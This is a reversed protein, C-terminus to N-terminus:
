RNSESGASKEASACLAYLMFLEGSSNAGVGSDVLARFGCPEGSSNAGDGIASVESGALACVTRRRGGM